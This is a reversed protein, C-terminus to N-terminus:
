KFSRVPSMTTHNSIPPKSGNDSSSDSDSGEGPTEVVVQSVRAVHKSDHIGPLKKKANASRPPGTAARLQKRRREVVVHDEIEKALDLQGNEKLEELRSQLLGSNGGLIPCKSRAHFNAGCISCKPLVAPVNQSESQSDGDDAPIEALQTPKAQKTPESKNNKKLNSSFPSKAVSLIINDPEESSIKNDNEPPINDLSLTTSDM